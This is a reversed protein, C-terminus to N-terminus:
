TVTPVTPASTLITPTTPATPTTPTISTLCIEKPAPGTGPRYACVYELRARMHIYRVRTESESGMGGRIRLQQSSLVGRYCVWLRVEAM